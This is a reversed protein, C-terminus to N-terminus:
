KLNIQILKRGPFVMSKKSMQILKTKVSKIRISDEVEIDIPLDGYTHMADELENLLKSIKM